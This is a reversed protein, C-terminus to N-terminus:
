NYRRLVEKYLEIYDTPDENGLSLDENVLAALGKTKIKEDGPYRGKEVGVPYYMGGYRASKNSYKKLFFIYEANETSPAYNEAAFIYRKGDIRGKYYEETLAIQDGQEVEGSYVKLISLNTKTYGVAIDGDSDKIIINEPNPMVKGLIIIDSEKELQDVDEIVIGQETHVSVVQPTEQYVNHIVVASTSLIALILTKSLKNLVISMM